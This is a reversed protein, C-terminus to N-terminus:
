SFFIGGLRIMYPHLGSRPRVGDEGLDLLCVARAIGHEQAHRDRDDAIDLQRPVRHVVGEDVRDPM